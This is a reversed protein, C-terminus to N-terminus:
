VKIIKKLVDKEAKCWIDLSQDNPMGLEEWLYYARKSISGAIKELTYEFEKIRNAAVNKGAVVPKKTIAFRKTVVVPKKMAVAKKGIASNKVVAIKKIPGVKVATGTVRRRGVAMGCRRKPDSGRDYKVSSGM